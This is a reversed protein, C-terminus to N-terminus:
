VSYFDNSFIYFKTTLENKPSQEPKELLNLDFNIIAIHLSRCSFFNEVHHNLNIKM